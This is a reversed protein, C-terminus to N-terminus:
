RTKVRVLNTRSDKFTRQRFVSSLNFICSSAKTLTKIVHPAVQVENAIVDKETLVCDVILTAIHQKRAIFHKATGMVM